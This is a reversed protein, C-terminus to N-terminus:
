KLLYLQWYFINFSIIFAAIGTLIYKVEMKKKIKTKKLLFPLFVTYSLLMLMFIFSIYVHPRIDGLVSYNSAKLLMIGINLFVFLIEVLSVIHYKELSIRPLTKRRRKSQIFAGLEIIVMIISYFLALVALVLFTYEARVQKQNIKYYDGYPMSLLTSGDEKQHIHLLSGDLDYLSPAFPYAKYSKGPWIVSLEDKKEEEVKIRTTLSYLKGFGKLMTRANQYTGDLKEQKPLFEGSPTPHFEGFILPMMEYNYIEENSQNAMVVVGTKTVPDILLHSSFAATNGSHGLVPVGFEMFWLGNANRPYETNGYYLTPDLLKQYTDKKQFLKQSEANELFAKGLKEFDELTGTAMGSPYLPIHFFNKEIIKNDYSYGQIEERKEKVWVNDRLDPLLATHKMNLPILIHDHVYKYFKQGTIEEVIYGALATGWNSYAKVKGAPYIQEPETEQLTEKLGHVDEMDEVFLDVIVEQWGADHHMLNFLTITEDEKSKTLFGEPLYTRIDQNLDIQGQEWLQLVSVWVLLKTSSGWEFVTDEKIPVQNEVDGYGHYGRYLTDQDNFISIAIGATTDKHEKIYDEITSQIDETGLGSPLAIEKQAYVPCSSNFILICAVMWLLFVKVRKIM